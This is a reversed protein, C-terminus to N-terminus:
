IETLGIAYRKEGHSLTLVPVQDNDTSHFSLVAQTGGPTSNKLIVSNTAISGHFDFLDGAAIRSVEFFPVLAGNEDQTVWQIFPNVRDDAPPLHNKFLAIFRASSSLDMDVSCPDMNEISLRPISLEGKCPNWEFQGSNYGMNPYCHPRCGKATKQSYCGSLIFQPGPKTPLQVFLSGESSDIVFDEDKKEKGHTFKIHDLCASIPECHEEEKEKKKPKCTSWISNNNKIDAAFNCDEEIFHKASTSTM